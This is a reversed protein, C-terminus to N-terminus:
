HICLLSALRTHKHTHTPTPPPNPNYNYWHLANLEIHIKAGDMLLLLPRSKNAYAAFHQVVGLTMESTFYGSDQLTCASHPPAAELINEPLTKKGKFVFLPPLAEGGANVIALMSTHNRYSSSLMKVERMGSVAVVLKPVGV